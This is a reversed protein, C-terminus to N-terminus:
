RNKRREQWRYFSHKLCRRVRPSYAVIQAPIIEDCFMCKRPEANKDKVTVPPSNLTGTRYTIM